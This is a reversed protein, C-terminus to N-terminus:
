FMAPPRARWRNLLSNVLPYETPKWPAGPQALMVQGFESQVSLAQQPIREEYQRLYGIAISRAALAVEEPASATWGATGSVSVNLGPSTYTFVGTDRVILGEPRLSWDDTTQAVGDVTVATLTQPHITYLRLTDTGTGDLTEVFGKHEFSTGCYDDILAEAFTIADTVKADSWVEVDEMGSVERVATITTYSM